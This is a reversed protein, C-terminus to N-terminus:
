SCGVACSLIAGGRAQMWNEGCRPVARHERRASLLLHLVAAPYAAAFEASACDVDRAAAVAHRGNPNPACRITASPGRRFDM